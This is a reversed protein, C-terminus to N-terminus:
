DLEPPPASDRELITARESGAQWSGDVRYESGIAIRDGPLRTWVVRFSEDRQGLMRFTLREGEYEAELEHDTLGSSACRLLMQDGGGGGPIIPCTREVTYRPNPNYDWLVLGERGQVLCLRALLNPNWRPSTNVQRYCRGTLEGLWGYPAGAPPAPQAIGFASAAVAWIM